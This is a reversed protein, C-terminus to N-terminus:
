CSLQLAGGSRYVPRRDLWDVRAVESAEVVLVEVGPSAEGRIAAVAYPSVNGTM